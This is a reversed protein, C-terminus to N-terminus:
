EDLLDFDLEYVEQLRRSATRNTNKLYQLLFLEEQSLTQKRLLSLEDEELVQQTKNAM